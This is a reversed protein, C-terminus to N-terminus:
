PTTPPAANGGPVPATTTPETTTPTPTPAPQQPVPAPAPQPAPAAPYGLAAQLTTYDFTVQGFSSLVDAGLLGNVRGATQKPLGTSRSIGVTTPVPVGGVTWKPIKVPQVKAKCSVAGVSVRGGVKKLKARTALRAEVTTSSAGTDLAFTSTRGRVKVKTILFTARRTAKSRLTTVPFTKDTPTFAGGVVLQANRFDVTVVGLASLADAGLLGVVPVGKVRPGTFKQSTAISAPLPVGGVSWSDVKVPQAATTCGITTFKVPKGANPLKLTKAVKRDLVTAQAGTDVTMLAQKGAITVPVYMAVPQKKGGTVVAPITTSGQPRVPPVATPAASSAVGPLAAAAATILLASPALLVRFSM